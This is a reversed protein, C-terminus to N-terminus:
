IIQDTRDVLHFVMFEFLQHYIAYDYKKIVKKDFKSVYDDANWKIRIKDSILVKEFM